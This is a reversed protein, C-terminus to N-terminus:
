KKRIFSCGMWWLPKKCVNALLESIKIGGLVGQFVADDKCWVDDSQSVVNGDM